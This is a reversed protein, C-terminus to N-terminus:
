NFKKFELLKSHIFKLLQRSILRDDFKQELLNTQDVFKKRADYPTGLM